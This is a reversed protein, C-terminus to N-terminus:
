DKHVAFLPPLPFTALYIGNPETKRIFPSLGLKRDGESTWWFAKGTPDFRISEPDVVEGGTKANPFLEGNERGFTTKTFLRVQPAGETLKISALYFRAEAHESKDDSVVAWIDHKPNYDLGSLGGVLSGGVHADNPITTAGLFRLSGIAAPPPDIDLLYAAPDASALGASAALLATALLLSRGTM